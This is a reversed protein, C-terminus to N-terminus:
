QVMEGDEDVEDGFNVTPFSEEEIEVYESCDRNISYSSSSETDSTKEDPETSSDVDEVEVPEEVEVSEVNLIYMHRGHPKCIDKDLPLSAEFCLPIPLGGIEGKGGMDEVRIIIRSGPKVLFNFKREVPLLELHGISQDVGAANNYKFITVSRTVAAFYSLPPMAVTIELLMM